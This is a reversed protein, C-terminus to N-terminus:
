YSNTNIIVNPNEISGIVNILAMYNGSQSRYGNETVATSIEVCKM